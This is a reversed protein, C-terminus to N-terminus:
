SCWPALELETTKFGTYQEKKLHPHDFCYPMTRRKNLLAEPLYYQMLANEKHIDGSKYYPSHTWSQSILADYLVDKPNLRHVWGCRERLMSCLGANEWLFRKEISALIWLVWIDAYWFTETPSAAMNLCYYPLWNAIPEIGEICVFRSQSYLGPSEM